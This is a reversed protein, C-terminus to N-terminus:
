LLSNGTYFYALFANNLQHPSYSLYGVNKECVFYVILDNNKPM